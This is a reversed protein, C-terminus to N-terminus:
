LNKQIDSIWRTFISKEEEQSVFRQEMNEKIIEGLDNSIDILIKPKIFARALKEDVVMKLACLQRQDISVLIESHESNLAAKKKM